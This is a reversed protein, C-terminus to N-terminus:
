QKTHYALLYIVTFSISMLYINHYARMSVMNFSDWVKRAHAYDGDSIHRDHLKSYFAEKPPLPEDFKAMTDMYEYPYVGKRMLLQLMEDSTNPCQKKLNVFQDIGGKLLNEGLTQLSAGLFQLSDKFVLYKGLSITLYKEMGQGIVTIKEGLQRTLARAIFHSDYGKFNHLIIPIKCTRQLRLNCHSHAAGRFNGYLPEPIAGHDHDRVKDQLDPDFPQKCIWCRVEANFLAQGMSGMDLRHEDFYYQMAEKEFDLMRDLFVDVCDEGIYFQFPRDFLPFNSKIKYGVSCPTQVEYDFTNHGHDPRVRDTPKVLAEFDAYVVFPARACYRFDYM